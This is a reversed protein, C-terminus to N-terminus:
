ILSYHRCLMYNTNHENNTWTLCSSSFNYCNYSEDLFLIMLETVLCTPMRESRNKLLKFSKRYWLSRKWLLGKWSEESPQMEEQNWRLLLYGWQGWVRDDAWDWCGSVLTRLGDNWKMKVIESFAELWEWNCALAIGIKEQPIM